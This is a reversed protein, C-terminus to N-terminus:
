FGIPLPRLPLTGIHFNVIKPLLDALVIFVVDEPHIVFTSEQLIVLPEAM